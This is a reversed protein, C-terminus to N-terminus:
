LLKSKVQFKCRNKAFKLHYLDIVIKNENNKTVVIDAIEGKNDDNFILDYYDEQILREM